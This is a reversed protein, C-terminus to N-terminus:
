KRLVGCKPCSAQSSVLLLDVGCFPCATVTTPAVSAIQAKPSPAGRTRLLHILTLVAGLPAAIRFFWLMVSIDQDMPALWAGIGLVLLVTLGAWKFPRRTRNSERPPNGCTACIWRTRYGLPILPIWFIHLADFTKFEVSRRPQNCRLCFDNRFAVRRPKFRYRGYVILM